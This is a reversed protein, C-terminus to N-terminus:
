VFIDGAKFIVKGKFFFVVFCGETVFGNKNEGIGKCTSFVANLFKDQAKITGM